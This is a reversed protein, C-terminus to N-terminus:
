YQHLSQLYKAKPKKHLHANSLAMALTFKSLKLIWHLPSFIFCISSLYLLNKWLKRESKGENIHLLPRRLGEAM